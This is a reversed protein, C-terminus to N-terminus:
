YLEESKIAHVLKNMLPDHCATGKKIINRNIVVEQPFYANSSSKILEATYVTGRDNVKYSAIAGEIKLVTTFNM